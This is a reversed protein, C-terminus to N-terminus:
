KNWQQLYSKFDFDPFFFKIENMASEDSDSGHTVNRTDSIGYLARISIPAIDRARYSHTPGMLERWRSIADQRSLIMATMPGSSMFGVLRNYFFRGEHEAYFKEAEKRTWCLVRSQVVNFGTDIIIDKVTKVRVPHLMIDPKLLALTLQVKRSHAM